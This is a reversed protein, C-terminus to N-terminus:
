PPANSNFMGIMLYQGFYSMTPYKEGERERELIISTIKNICKPTLKNM